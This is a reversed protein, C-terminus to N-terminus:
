IIADPRRGRVFSANGGDITTIQTEVAAGCDIVDAYPTTGMPGQIGQMGQKGEPVRLTLMGTKANYSGSANHGYPADDVAISLNKIESVNSEARKAADEAREASKEAKGASASAEGAGNESRRAASEARDAIDNVEAYLEEATKPPNEDSVSVKVARDLEEQIEQIMMVSRDLADHELVEEDFAGTNILDVLQTQPTDRYITLRSGTPVPQGNLPYVVSTDGSENVDVRFNSTVEANRDKADTLLLRIDETQSYQFPVPFVTATGNGRYIEKIKKSEVTM